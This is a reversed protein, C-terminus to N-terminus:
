DGDVSVNRITVDNEDAPGIRERRDACYADAFDSDAAGAAAIAVGDTVRGAASYACERDGDILHESSSLRSGASVRWRVSRCHTEFSHCTAIVPARSMQARPIRPSTSDPLAVPPLRLFPGATREAVDSRRGDAGANVPSSTRAINASGPLPPPRAGPDAHDRRCARDGGPTAGESLGMHLPGLARSSARM